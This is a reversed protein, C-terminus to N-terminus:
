AGGRTSTNAALIKLTRMWSLNDLSYSVFKMLLREQQVWHADLPDVEATGCMLVTVFSSPLCATLDPLTQLAAVLLRCQRLGGCSKQLM